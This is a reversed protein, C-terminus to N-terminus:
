SRRRAKTNQTDQDQFQALFLRRYVDNRDLLEDHTGEAVIIGQHLVVLRDARQVTSLRHAIVITTRNKMLNALARQIMLESESDLSSTAEDLILLPADRLIARAIALRQRQGGSLKIGKEGIVTDMGEPLERVFDWAYAAQLADEVQRDDARLRGYVVNNRVSGNFLFTEQPVFSMQRRLSTLTFDRIDRGDILIAGSTPEYLRPLLHVLTSKGSGSIGVFAVMSGAKISFTVDNLVPVSSTDYYFTVGKFALSSAIGALDLRGRDGLSETEKDLMDFIRDAAAVMEQLSGTSSAMKRIPAYAMVLAAMFSFVEGPTMAGDLVLTGGYWMIGVIAASGILEVLPSALAALRGLKVSVRTFRVNVAHFREKETEERRYIKLLRIGSLTEGLFSMVDGALELDRTSLGRLRRGIRFVAYGSLPMIAVLCLTLRWNLYFVLGMMTLFTLAQQVLNKMVVPVLRGVVATDYTIRSVLHGSMQSDHFRLPLTILHLFLQDRLDAVVWKEVYALISVNWFTVGARLIAVTLVSWALPLLFAHNRQVLIEDFFPRILWAYLGTLGAVSAACVAALLLRWRYPRLYRVVRLM